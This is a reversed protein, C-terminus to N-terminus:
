LFGQAARLALASVEPSPVSLDPILSQAYGLPIRGKSVAERLAIERGQLDYGLSVRWVPKMNKAKAESVARQYAEKFAMRAAVLDGALARAAGFASAIEDTWVVSAKEDTICVSVVSWAEEAGLHGGPIRDLVDALTVKRLEKRCRTLAALVDSEPYQSLDERMITAATDSLTQGLLEYTILIAQTLEAKGM